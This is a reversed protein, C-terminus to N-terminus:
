GVELFKVREIILIFDFNVITTFHNEEEDRFTNVTSFCNMAKEPFIFLTSGM